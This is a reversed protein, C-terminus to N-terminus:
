YKQAVITMVSGIKLIRNTIIDCIHNGFIFRILKGLRTELGYRENHFITRETFFYEIKWGSQQLLITISKPGFYYMHYPPSHLIWRSGYLKANLSEVNPTSLLLYGKAKACQALVKLYDRPDDLHEIVDLLTIMDFYNRPVMRKDDKKLDLCYIPAGDLNSSAKKCIEDNVEIGHIEVDNIQEKLLKLFSGYSCGFDLVRLQQLNNNKFLSRVQSAYQKYQGVRHSESISSYSEPYGIKGKTKQFMTGNFYDDTYFDKTPVIYNPHLRLLHCNKCILHIFGQQDKLTKIKRSGCVYCTDVRSIEKLAM